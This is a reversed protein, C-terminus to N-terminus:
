ILINLLADAIEPAIHELTVQLIPKQVWVFM